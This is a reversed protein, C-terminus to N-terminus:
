SGKRPHLCVLTLSLKLTPVVDQSRNILTVFLMKEVGPQVFMRFLFCDSRLFTEPHIKQIFDSTGLPPSPSFILGPSQGLGCWNNSCARSSDVPPPPGRQPSVTSRQRRDACCLHHCKFFFIPRAPRETITWFELHGTRGQVYRLCSGPTARCCCPACSM